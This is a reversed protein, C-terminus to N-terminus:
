KRLAAAGMAHAGCPALVIAARSIEPGERVTVDGIGRAWHYRADEGIRWDGDALLAPTECVADFCRGCKPERADM